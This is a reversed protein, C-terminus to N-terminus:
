PESNLAIAGKELAVSFHSWIEEVDELGISIRILDRRVGCSEVYEFESSHSLITYPISLTFNTGLSPGKAFNFTDYVIKAIDYGGRVIFSLLPGFADGEEISYRKYMATNVFKPYYISEVLPHAKLRDAIIAANFNVRARREHIDASADLLTQADGEYLYSQGDLGALLESAKSSSPNVILSGGIVTANGSFIKTLSTAIIDAAHGDISKLVNVNYSGVTDDVILIADRRHAIVALRAIDPSRLLPNSPLETFIANINEIGELEELDNENGNPYFIIDESNWEPRRLMKLTDLYPFGFMVTKGKNPLKKLLRYANFIAAMGAPYLSVNASPINYLSAIRERLKTHSLTNDMSIEVDHSSENLSELLREALRSSTIEGGHQWCARFCNLAETPMILAHADGVGISEFTISDSPFSHSLFAQFREAVAWTPLVFVAKSPDNVHHKHWWANLAINNAHYVFRPYGTRLATHLDHNGVAYKEVHEWKPMSVSVAHFHDPLAQGLERSLCRPTATM